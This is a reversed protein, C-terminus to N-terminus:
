RLHRARIDALGVPRTLDHRLFIPVPKKQLAVRCILLSACSVSKPKACKPYHAPNLLSAWRALKACAIPSNGGRASVSEGFYALLARTLAIATQERSDGADAPAGAYGSWIRRDGRRAYIRVEIMPPAPAAADGTSLAIYPRM